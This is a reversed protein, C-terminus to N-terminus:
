PGLKFNISGIISSNIRLILFGKQVIYKDSNEREIFTMGYTANIEDMREVPDPIEKIEDKYEEFNWEKLSFM